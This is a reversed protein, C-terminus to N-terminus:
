EENSFGLVIQIVGDAPFTVNVTKQSMFPMGTLSKRCFLGMIFVSVYQLNGLQLRFGSIIHICCCQQEVADAQSLVSSMKPM